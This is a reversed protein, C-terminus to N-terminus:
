VVSETDGEFAARLYPDIIDSSIIRFFKHNFYKCQIYILSKDEL